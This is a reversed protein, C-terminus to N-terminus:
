MKKRYFHKYFGNEKMSALADKLSANGFEPSSVSRLSIITPMSANSMRVKDSLKAGNKTLHIFMAKQLSEKSTENLEKLTNQIFSLIYQGYDIAEESSPIYGQHIVNNRFSSRKEEWNTPKGELLRLLFFAGLQRESQKAM